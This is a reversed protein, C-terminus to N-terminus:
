AEILISMANRKSVITLAKTCLLKASTPFPKVRSSYNNIRTMICHFIFNSLLRWTCGGVCFSCVCLINDAHPLTWKCSYFSDKLRKTRSNLRRGSPLLEFLHYRYHTGDKMIHEARDRCHSNSIDKFSPLSCRIIKSAVNIIRQTAVKDAVSCVLCHHLVDACAISSRDFTLLERQM